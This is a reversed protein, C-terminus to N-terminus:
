IRLNRVPLLKKSLTLIFKCQTFETSVFNLLDRLTRFNIYENPNSNWHFPQEKRMFIYVLLHTPKRDRSMRDIAIAGKRSSYRLLCIGDGDAVNYHSTVTRQLLAVSDHRSIHGWFFGDHPDWYSVGLSFIVGLNQEFEETFKQYMEESMRTGKQCWIHTNKRVDAANMVGYHDVVNRHEGELHQVLVPKVRRMFAPVFSSMERRGIELYILNFNDRLHRLSSKWSETVDPSQDPDFLYDDGAGEYKNVIAPFDNKITLQGFTKRQSEMAHLLDGVLSPRGDFGQVYLGDFVKTALLIDLTSQRGLLDQEWYKKPVTRLFLEGLTPKPFGDLRHTDHIKSRLDLPKRRCVLLKLQPCQAVIQNFFIELDKRYKTRRSKPARSLHTEMFKYIGDFVFVCYGSVKWLNPAGMEDSKMWTNLDIWFQTTSRSKEELLGMSEMCKQLYLIPEMYETMEGYDFYYFGKYVHRESLYECVKRVLVTKGMGKPGSISTVAKRKMIKFIYYMDLNRGLFAEPMEDDRGMFWVPSPRSIIRKQNTFYGPHFLIKNHYDPGVNEPLLIFNNKSSTVSIMNVGITFAEQVTRSRLLALYFQKLFRHADAEQLAEPQRIAVVHPISCEEIFVKAFRESHCASLVLLQAPSSTNGLLTKLDKEYLRRSQGILETDEELLLCDSEGHGSFHVIMSERTFIERVHELTGRFRQHRVASFEFPCTNEFEDIVNQFKDQEDHLRLEPIPIFSGDSEEEVLPLSTIYAIDLDYNKRRSKRIQPRALVSNPDYPPPRSHIQPKIAEKKLVEPNRKEVPRQFMANSSQPIQNFFTGNGFVLSDYRHLPAQSEAM